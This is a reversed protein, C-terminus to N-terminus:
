LQRCVIVSFGFGTEVLGEVHGTGVLWTRPVGDNYVFWFRYAPQRYLDGRALVRLREKAGPLKDFDKVVGSGYGPTAAFGNRCEWKQMGFVTQPLFGAIFRYVLTEPTG